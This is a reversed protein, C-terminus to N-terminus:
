DLPQTRQHFISSATCSRASRGRTHSWPPRWWCGWSTLRSTRPLTPEAFQWELPKDSNKVNQVKIQWNKVKKEMKKVSSRYHVKTNNYYGKIWFRMYQYPFQNYLYPWLSFPYLERVLSTQKLQGHDMDM